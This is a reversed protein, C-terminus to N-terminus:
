ARAIRVFYRPVFAYTGDNTCEGKVCLLCEHCCDIRGCNPDGSCDNACRLASM